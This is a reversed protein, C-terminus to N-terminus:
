LVLRFECTKFDPILTTPVEASTNDEIVIYYSFNVLLNEQCIHTRMLQWMVVVFYLSKLIILTM